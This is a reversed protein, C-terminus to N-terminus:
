PMDSFHRFGGEDYFFPNEDLTLYCHNGRRRLSFSTRRANDIILTESARQWRFEKQRQPADSDMGSAQWTGSTDARLEIRENFHVDGAYWTQELACDNTNTRPPRSVITAVTMMLAVVTVNRASALIM